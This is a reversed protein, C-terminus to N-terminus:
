QTTRSATRATVRRAPRAAALASLALEIREDIAKESLLTDALARSAARPLTGSDAIAGGLLIPSGIAGVCFALAQRPAMARIVGRRQGEALLAQILGLHRPLNERMFDRAVVEGSLADAMVRVIFRRNERAFKGIVRFASRLAAVPELQRGTELTLHTFMGEYTRQLLTRLFAERTGFHYHFMGINVGAADAVQRITLGACGHVPFLESGAALLARDLNRSPRAM